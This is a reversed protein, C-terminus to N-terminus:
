ITFILTYTFVLDGEGAGGKPKLEGSTDPALPKPYLEELIKKVLLYLCHYTYPDLQTQDPKICTVNKPVLLAGHETKGTISVQTTELEEGYLSTHVNM